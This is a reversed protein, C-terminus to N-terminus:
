KRSNSVFARCACCSCSHGLVNVWRDITQLFTDPQFKPMLVLTAGAKISCEMAVTLGYIHYLPITCLM